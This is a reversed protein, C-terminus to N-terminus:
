ALYHVYAGIHKYMKKDRIELNFDFKQWGQLSTSYFKSWNLSSQLDTAEFVFFQVGYKTTFQTYYKGM